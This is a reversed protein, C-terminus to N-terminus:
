PPSVHVTVDINDTGVRAGPVQGIDAPGVVHRTPQCCMIGACAGPRGSAAYPHQKIRFAARVLAMGHTAFPVELAITSESFFQSTSQEALSSRRLRRTGVPM